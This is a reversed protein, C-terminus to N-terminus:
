DKQPKSFLERLGMIIIFAAFFKALIKPDIFKIIVTGLIAGLMGLICVPFIARWNIQGKKTYVIIAVIAIPIFFLINIGQATLQSVQTFVTLYLLLVTGGGLGMAGTVGALVGAILAIAIDM